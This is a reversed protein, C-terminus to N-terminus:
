VMELGEECWGTIDKHVPDNAMHETNTIQSLLNHKVGLVPADYHSVYPFLSDLNIQGAHPNM